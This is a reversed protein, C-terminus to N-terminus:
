NESAQLTMLWNTTNAPPYPDDFRAGSVTYYDMLKSDSDYLQWRMNGIPMDSSWRIQKPPNYIRRAKFPTYGMLIPYGYADLQPSDDWDFYWRNVVDKPQTTTDSDKLNQNYTIDTCTFDIYRTPRLDISPNYQKVKNNLYARESFLKPILPTNSMSFNASGLNRLTYAQQSSGLTGTSFNAITSPISQAQCALNMTQPLTEILEGATYFGQQIFTSVLTGSVDFLLSNTSNYPTINPIDWELTTETNGIRTFFGNLYNQSNTFQFDFPTARYYKHNGSIDYSRDASDVMLNATTPVRAVYGKEVGFSYSM